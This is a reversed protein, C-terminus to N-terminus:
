DVCSVLATTPAMYALRLYAYKTPFHLPVVCLPFFAQADFRKIGAKAAGAADLFREPRFSEPDEWYRPDRHIAYAAFRVQTGGPVAFTKTHGNVDPLSTMLTEGPPAERQNAFPVPPSLRLTENLYADLLPTSRSAVQDATPFDIQSLTM